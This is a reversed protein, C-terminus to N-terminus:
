EAATSPTVEPSQQSASPSDSVQSETTEAAVEPEPKRYPTIQILAGMLPHDIYHLEGSRMKRHATFRYTQETAPGDAIPETKVARRLVFDLDVHLYRNVSTKIVGELVPNGFTTGQKSQLYVDRARSPGSVPQRWARHILPQLPEKSRKLSYAAPGLQRETGPVKPYRSSRVSDSWDPPESDKSWHETNGAADAHRTFLLIEVEYWPAQSKKGQALCDPAPLLLGPLILLVLFRCNKM